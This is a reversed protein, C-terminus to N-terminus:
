RRLKPVPGLKDRALIVPARCDNSRFVAFVAEAPPLDGLRKFTAKESNAASKPCRDTVITAPAAALMLPLILTTLPM